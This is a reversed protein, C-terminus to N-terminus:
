RAPQRALGSAAAQEGGMEEATKVLTEERLSNIARIGTVLMSLVGLLLPIILLLHGHGAIFFGPWLFIATASFFPLPSRILTSRLMRQQRELARSYFERAMGTARAQQRVILRRDYAIVALVALVLVSYCSFFGLPDDLFHAALGGLFANVLYLLNHGLDMPWRVFALVHGLSEDWIWMIAILLTIIYPWYEFQLNRVIPAASDTLLFLIMGVMVSIMTFEVSAVLSGLHRDAQHLLYPAPTEYYREKM